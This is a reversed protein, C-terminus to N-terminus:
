EPPEGSTRVASRQLSRSLDALTPQSWIFIKWQLDSNAATLKIGRTRCSFSSRPELVRYAAFRFSRSRAASSLAKCVILERETISWKALTEALKSKVSEKFAPRERPAFAHAKFTLSLDSSPPKGAQVGPRLRRWHGVHWGTGSRGLGGNRVTEANGAKHFDVASGTLYPMTMLDVPMWHGDRLDLGCLGSTIKNLLTWARVKALYDTGFYLFDWGRPFWGSYGNVTPINNLRAIFM